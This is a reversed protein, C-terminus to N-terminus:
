LYVNGIAVSREQELCVYGNNGTEEKRLFPRKMSSDQSFFKTSM